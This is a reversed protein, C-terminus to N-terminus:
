AAPRTRSSGRATAAAVVEDDVIGCAYALSPSSARSRRAEVERALFSALTQTEGVIEAGDSDPSTSTTANWITVTPSSAVSRKSVSCSPRRTCRPTRRARDRPRFPRPPRRTSADARDAVLEANRRALALAVRPAVARTGIELIVRLEELMRGARALREAHIERARELQMGSCLVAAIM